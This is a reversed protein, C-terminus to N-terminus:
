RLIEKRSAGNKIIHPFETKPIQRIVIESHTNERQVIYFYDQCNKDIVVVHQGTDEIGWMWLEPKDERLEYNVDLLWFTKKLKGTRVSSKPHLVNKVKKVAM